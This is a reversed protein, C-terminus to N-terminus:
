RTRRRENTPKSRVHCAWHVDGYWNSTTGCHYQAYSWPDPGGVQLLYLDLERAIADVMDRNASAERNVLWEVPFVHAKPPGVRAVGVWADPAADQSGYRLELHDGAHDVAGDRWSWGAQRPRRATTMDIVVTSATTSRNFTSPSSCSCIGSTWSCERWLQDRRREPRGSTEGDCTAESGGSSGLVSSSSCPEWTSARTLRGSLDAAGV